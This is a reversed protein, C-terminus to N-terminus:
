ARWGPGRPNAALRQVPGPSRASAAPRPRAAAAAPAAVAPRRRTGSAPGADGEARAIKRNARMVVAVVRGLNTLVQPVLLGGLVAAIAVTGTPYLKGSQQEFIMGGVAALLGFFAGGISVRPRWRARRLHLRPITSIAAM